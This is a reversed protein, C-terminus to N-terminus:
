GATLMSDSATLSFGYLFLSFPIQLIGSSSFSMAVLGIHPCVFRENLAQRDLSSGPLTVRM